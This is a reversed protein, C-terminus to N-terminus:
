SENDQGGTNKWLLVKADPHFMPARDEAFFEPRRAAGPAAAHPRAAHFLTRLLRYGLAMLVALKILELAVYLLHLDSESPTGGAIIVEVRADLAPLLWVTQLAVIGCVVAAMIYAWRPPRYLLVLSALTLSWAIEAWNFIKFTHRGVDLAVPLVLSPALFKVPTALFSVGLVMGSWVLSIVLIGIVTRQQASIPATNLAM